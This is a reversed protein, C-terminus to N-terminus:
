GQAANRFGMYAKKVNENNLVDFPSGDAVINGADIFMVRRALDRVVKMNHEVMLVACNGESLNQIIETVKIIMRPHLGAMPEDLLILEYEKMLLTGLILLKRQGYSLSGATQSSNGPLALQDLIQRAKDKLDNEKDKWRLSFVADLGEIDDSASLLLNDELRLNNYLRVEQFLRAIGMRARKYSPLRNMNQGNLIIAGEDPTLHGTILDLITTKGSGNPGILFVPSNSSTIDFSVSDVAKVGDFWKSLNKINLEM